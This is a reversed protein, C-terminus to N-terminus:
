LPIHKPLYVKPLILPYVLPLIKSGTQKLHHDMISTAYKLMRFPLLKDPSSAHEMLVYLYGPKGEFKVKYLLDVIQLRLKDDIFSEKQLEISSFDVLRKIKEPLYHRFFDEIAKPNTLISRMYRDHPSIRNSSVLFRM